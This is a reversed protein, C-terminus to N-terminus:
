SKEGHYFATRCIDEQVQRWLEDKTLGILEKLAVDAVDEKLKCFTEEDMSAYNMSQHEYLVFGNPAVIIKFRGTKMILWRRMADIDKFHEQNEFIIKLMAFFRRHNLPDRVKSARVELIEGIALNAVKEHDHEPLIEFFGDPRKAIALKM